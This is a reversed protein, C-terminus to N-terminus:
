GEGMKRMYIYAINAQENTDDNIVELLTYFSTTYKIGYNLQNTNHISTRCHIQHRRCSALWPQRTELREQAMAVMVKVPEGGSHAQFREAVDLVGAGQLDQLREAVDLLLGAGQLDQLREAVDLLLGAGQLDQLREAVDLLLGAGHLDQLREAVDLLLGAGQLDQLRAAM